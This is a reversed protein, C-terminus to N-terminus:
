ILFGKKIEKLERTRIHENKLVLKPNEYSLEQFYEEGIEKIFENKMGEIKTYFSNPRHADSGLFHVANSNILKILTTKANNGYTGIISPYNCQLLAGKKVWQIAIEIDSQVISYREPHAIVPVLGKELLSDIINETYMIKSNMPLEFLVYRSNGLAPITREELLKPLNNSIYGEAGIHIKVNINEIQLKKNIADIIYERDLKNFEYQGEIYHSTAFIDTFGADKAEKIMEFTEKTNVAGDDISPLIHAHMDIM